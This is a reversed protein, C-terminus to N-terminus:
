ELWWETIKINNSTGGCSIAVYASENINSVDFYGENPNTPSSGYGIRNDTNSSTIPLTRWAQSSRMLTVVDGLANRIMKYPTLDIPQTHCELWTSSGDGTLRLCDSEKICGYNSSIPVVEVGHDYLYTRETRDSYDVGFFNITSVYMQSSSSHTIYVGWYQHTVTGEVYFIKDEGGVLNSSDSADFWDTGNDSYQITANAYNYTARVKAMKITTPKDFKYYYRADNYSNYQASFTSDDGDFMKYITNNSPNAPHTTLCEGYPETNGTMTPVGVNLARGYFQLGNLVVAVTSTTTVPLIRYALYYKNNDISFYQETSTQELTIVNGIDEWTGSKSSSGQLKFTKIGYALDRLMLRVKEVCVPNTFVYGIYAQSANNTQWYQTGTTFARHAPLIEENAFTEGYPATNSTMKPVKDKLIYGWYESALLKDGTITHGYSIFDDYTAELNTTLMPKIIVNNFTAGGFIALEPWVTANETVDCIVGDGFEYFLLPDLKLRVTTNGGIGIPVGLFKYRNPEIYMTCLRIYRTGTCTGNLTYTGDGNNTITVGNITTSQFTPKLLNKTGFNMLKDCIYDNLGIWKMAIENVTFMDLMSNDANYWEMFYDVSAHKSMLKRMDAEPIDELNEYSLGITQCWEKISYAPGPAPGEGRGAVNVRGIM